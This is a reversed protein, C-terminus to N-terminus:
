MRLSKLNNPLNNRSLWSAALGVAVADTVDHKQQAALQPFFAHLARAVQVKDAGGSGTIALKVERPSLETLSLQYKHSLLYIIGRLYGLKLFNQANKGLFPTEIAIGAPKHTLILQLIGDHFLAVREQLPLTAKFSLFGCARIITKGQHYEILSYGSVRTGPDIGLMLM